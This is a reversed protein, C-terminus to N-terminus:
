PNEQVKYIDNGFYMTDLGQKEDFCFEIDINEEEDFVYFYIMGNEEDKETKYEVKQEQYKAEFDLERYYREQAAEFEETTMEVGENHLSFKESTARAKAADRMLTIFDINEFYVGDESLRIVSNSNKGNSLYYDGYTVLTKKSCASLLVLILFCTVFCSFKKMKNM